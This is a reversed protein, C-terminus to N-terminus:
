DLAHANKPHQLKLFTIIKTVKKEISDSKKMRYLLITYIPTLLLAIVTIYETDEM